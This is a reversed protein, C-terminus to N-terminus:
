EAPQASLGSSRVTDQGDVVGVVSVHAADVLTPSLTDSSTSTDKSPTATKKSDRKEKKLQYSPTSLQSKQDSTLLNCFKCDADPKEVCPDKGKEKDCCRACYSHSDFGAMLNGCGGHKQGSSAM